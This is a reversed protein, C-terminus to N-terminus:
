FVVLRVFWRKVEGAIAEFAATEDRLMGLTWNGRVKLAEANLVTLRFNLRDLRGNVGFNTFAFGEKIDKSVEGLETLIAQREQEIEALRPPTTFVDPDFYDRFEKFEANVAAVPQVVLLDFGAKFVLPMFATVVLASVVTGVIRGLWEGGQQPSFALMGASVPLFSCGILIAIGAGLLIFHAILAIMTVPIVAANLLTLATQGAGQTAARAVSAGANVLNASAVGTMGGALMLTDTGLQQMEAAGDQFSAAMEGGSWARLNRWTALSLDTIQPTLAILATAALLRLFTDNLGGVSGRLLVGVLSAVFGLAALAYAVTNFGQQYDDTYTEMEALWTDVNFIAALLGGDIPGAASALTPTLVLALSFLFRKTGM